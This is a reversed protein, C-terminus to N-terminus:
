FVKLVRCSAFLSQMGKIHNASARVAYTVAIRLESFRLDSCDQRKSLKAQLM